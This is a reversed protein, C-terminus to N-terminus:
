PQGPIVWVVVGAVVVGAVVVGAVVVGAVVVGAVVVGAVVVGAVVVGAVLLVDGNTGPGPCVPSRGGPPLKGSRCTRIPRATTISPPAPM